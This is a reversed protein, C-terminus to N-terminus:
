FAMVNVAVLLARLVFGLILWLLFSQRLFKAVLGVVVAFGVWKGMHKWFDALQAKQADKAAAASAAPNNVAADMQRGEELSLHAVAGDPQRKTWGSVETTDSACPENQAIVQGDSHKCMKLPQLPPLDKLTVEQVGHAPAVACMLVLVVGLRKM